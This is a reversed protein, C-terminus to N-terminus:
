FRRADYGKPKLERVIFQAIDRDNKRADKLSELLNDDKFNLGISNALNNAFSKDRSEMLQKQQAKLAPAIYFDHIFKDAMGSNVANLLKDNKMADNRNVIWEDKEAEILTGGAYHRQGKVKGGKEFKPTPQSAVVALEAAGVVGALIAGYYGTEAFQTIVAQATAIIIKIISIQRDTEFQQKKIARQKDEKDKELQAVKADYQSQTITKHDLQYKLNDIEKQTAKDSDQIKQDSVNRSIEGIDNILAGIAQVEQEQLKKREAAAKQEQDYLKKQKEAGLKVEEDTLKDTFAIADAWDKEDQKDQLAKKDINFKSEINLIDKNNSMVIQAESVGSKRAANSKLELEKYSNDRILELKQLETQAQSSLLDDATKKDFDLLDKLASEMDSKKKDKAADSAAQGALTADDRVKNSEKNLNRLELNLKKENELFQLAAKQEDLNKAKIVDQGLKVINQSSAALLTLRKIESKEAEELIKSNQEKSKEFYIQAIRKTSQEALTTKGFLVDFSDLLENGAGVLYEGVKEKLDDYANALRATKGATTLAADGAAGQFKSLKETLLALNQTKSGTDAYQIGVEKLGRTQGNIGQIAKGTATALDSGTASALDTIQPILKEVQKSTLGFQVLQTQAKQIDDDSFITTKQLKESQELLKKLAQSGEGGIQTLAFKLKNANVEAESFAKISEKGFEILKDTAFAALLIKGIEKAGEKIGEGAKAFHKETNEASTKATTDVKKLSDEAGKLSAKFGDVEAKYIVEIVDAM